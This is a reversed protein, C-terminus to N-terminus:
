KRGVSLSPDGSAVSFGLGTFFVKKATTVEAPSHLSLPSKGRWQPDKEQKFM